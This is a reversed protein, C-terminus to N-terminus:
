QGPGGGGPGGRPGGGPGGGGPGGPAGAGQGPPQLTAYKTQQATTLIAYFAADAEADATVQQTTLSGITGAAAIIGSKSNSTIATQLATQATQMQTAIAQDTTVQAAFIATATAQQASTLDLLTTLRAVMNAAVQAPTPPAPPMSTSTSQGCLLAAALTGILAIRLFQRKM